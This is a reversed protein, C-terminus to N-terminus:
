NLVQDRTKFHLKATKQLVAAGHKAVLKKGAQIVIKSAGKPLTLDCEDSLKDMGQLFVMRAIISAGAVIPDQEAHTRQELDIEINKYKLANTVLHTAGFKDILAKKCNTKESANAIVTAHAWALLRNLNNFRDYLENYKEPFLKLISCPFEKEIIKGLKLVKIDSIKKSDQVGLEILKKIGEKDAYLAVTCLPGFFDGKGAEDVGIKPTFDVNALPNTYTFEQMIEPELYFEIFNDKDKGQVTLAGSSYLTCNIGKKKASFFTYQPASLVFGQSLLDQKLKDALKIDIKTSFCAQRIKKM